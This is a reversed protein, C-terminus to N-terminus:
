AVDNARFRAAAFAGPALRRAFTSTRVEPSPRLGSLTSRKARRILSATTPGSEHRLFTPRAIEAPTSRPRRGVVEQEAGGCGVACGCAWEPGLCPQTVAM